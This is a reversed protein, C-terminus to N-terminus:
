QPEETLPPEDPVAPTAPQDTPQDQQQDQPQDAAPLTQGDVLQGNSGAQTPQRIVLFRPVVQGAPVTVKFRAGIEIDIMPLKPSTGPSLNPAVSIVEYVIDIEPAYILLQGPQIIQGFRDAVVMPPQPPNPRMPRFDRVAM